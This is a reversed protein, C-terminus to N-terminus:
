KPTDNANMRKIALFIQYFGGFTGVVFGSMVFVPQTHLWKDLYWGGVTCVATTLVLNIGLSSLWLMQGAASDKPPHLIKRFDPAM